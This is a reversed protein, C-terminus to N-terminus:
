SNPFMVWNEEEKMTKSQSGGKPGKFLKPAHFDPWNKVVIIICNLNDVQLRCCKLITLVGVLSFM